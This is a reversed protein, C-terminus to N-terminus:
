LHSAGAIYFRAEHAVVVTALFSEDGIREPDDEPSLNVRVLEAILKAAELCRL